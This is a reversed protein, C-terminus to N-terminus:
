DKLYFSTTYGAGKLPLNRCWPPAIDFIREIDQLTIKEDAEVVIEDHVHFVIPIGADECRLIVEGLLDRAIAQVINETLKGGYTQQTEWKRSIQNMGEYEIVEHGWHNEGIQVRPYCITRGSPLTILLMGWRKELTIGKHIQLTEGTSVVHKAARDLIRWLSVIKPNSERWLSVIDRMEYDSLGMKSGGMAQLAGVSGEYGLALVAIKGKDRLPANVGHKEVPVGFMKQATSCYIDGGKRFVDLVWDEGAIWAIVRAEIASFDCVHFSRGEPAIFATRILESLVGIVNSFNISFNDFDGARLLERAYALDRLKNKPLNQVQVLRGAWRGTRNAGYYQMLGRVRDDCCACELMASYKKTSTKGLERRLSLVETINPFYRLRNELDELSSKNLSPALFGAQSKIWEKLQVPSNPNDLGTLVKTKALLAGRYTEDFRVANEVLVRDIMVGRDNIRQDVLRLREEWEPVELRRVKALIAQEIEVDRACYRKFTEWKDPADERHHRQGKVPKSFYRILASGEKMKGDKLGLVEACQGLALPLGLRAALAMTCIWQGADMLPIGLYRSLCVREFAANHASKKVSPDTLAVRIEDPLTEGNALDIVTVPGNDVSYGFLLVTFDEAEVYRYVGCEALDHSSYTEIDIGLEKM